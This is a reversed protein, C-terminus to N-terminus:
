YGIIVGEEEDTIYYWNQDSLTDNNLGSVIYFLLSELWIDKKYDIAHEKVDEYGASAKEFEGNSEVIYLCFKKM